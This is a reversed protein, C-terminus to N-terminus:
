LADSEDRPHHTPLDAWDRPTWNATWDRAPTTRPKGPPRRTLRSLLDRMNMKRRGREPM